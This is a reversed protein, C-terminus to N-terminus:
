QLSNGSAQFYWEHKGSTPSKCRELEQPVPSDNLETLGSFLIVFFHTLNQWCKM